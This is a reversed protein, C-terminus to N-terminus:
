HHSSRRRQLTELRSLTAKISAVVTEEGIRLRQLLSHNDKHREETDV